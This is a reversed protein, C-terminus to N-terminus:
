NTENRLLKLAKLYSEQFEQLKPKKINEKLEFLGKWTNEISQQIIAIALFMDGDSLRSLKTLTAQEGIPKYKDKFQESKYQKWLDWANLFMEDTFPFVVEKKNVKSVKREKVKRKKKANGECQPQVANADNAKEKGWRIKAAKRATASKGKRLKIRHLVSTSTFSDAHQKFLDFNNIVTKVKVEDTHLAYAIRECNMQLYGDNKYLMEIISWYIGYGEMKMDFLLEQIKEDERADYDHSFYEAM